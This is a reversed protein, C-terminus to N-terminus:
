GVSEAVPANTKGATGLVQALSMLAASLQQGDINSDNLNEIQAAINNLPNGGVSQLSTEEAVECVEEHIAELMASPEEDQGSAFSRPDDQITEGASSTSFSIADQGRIGVIACRCQDVLLTLAAEIQDEDANKRALQEVDFALDSLSPYGYGGSAGKLQHAIGSVATFNRDDFATLISDIREGLGDVFMEIIELMDPDDFFDSVLPEYVKSPKM